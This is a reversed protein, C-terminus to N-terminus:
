FYKSKEESKVGDIIALVPALIMIFIVLCGMMFAFPAENPGVMLGYIAIILFIIGM